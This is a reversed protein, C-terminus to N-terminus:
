ACESTPCGVQLSVSLVQGTAQSVSHLLYAHRYLETCVYSNCTCVYSACTVSGWRRQDAPGQPLEPGEACLEAGHKLTQPPFLCM